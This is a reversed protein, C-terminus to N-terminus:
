LDFRLIVVRGLIKKLISILAVTNCAALWTIILLSAENWNKKKEGKKRKNGKSCTSVHLRELYLCCRTLKYIIGDTRKKKKTKKARSSFFSSFYRRKSDNEM